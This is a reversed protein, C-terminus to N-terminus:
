TSLLCCSGLEIPLDLEVRFGPGNTIAQRPDVPDPVRVAGLQEVALVRTTASLLTANAPVPYENM